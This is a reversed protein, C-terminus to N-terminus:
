VVTTAYITHLVEGSTRSLVKASSCHLNIIDIKGHMGCLVCITTGKSPLVEFVVALYDERFGDAVHLENHIKVVYALISVLEHTVDGPVLLAM